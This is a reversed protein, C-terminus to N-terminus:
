SRNVAFIFASPVQAQAVLAPPEPDSTPEPTEARGSPEDMTVPFKLPVAVKPLVVRMLLAPLLSTNVAFIFASPVQAQAVLAPPVPVSLPWLTEARGSPEDMTVPYKRSVAVKPLVVRVLAPLWSTNVAFIFASPV